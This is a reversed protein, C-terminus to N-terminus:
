HQELRGVLDHGVSSFVKGRETDWIAEVQLLSGLYLAWEDLCGCHLERETQGVNSHLSAWVCESLEAAVDSDEM